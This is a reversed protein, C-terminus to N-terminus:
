ALRRKQLTRDLFWYNIVGSVMALFDTTMVLKFTEAATM